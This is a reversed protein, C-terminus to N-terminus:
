APSGKELPKSRATEELRDIYDRLRRVSADFPEPDRQTRAQMVAGEMVSLTFTALEYRDVEAPLREGAHEFCSGVAKKWADFNAVLKQRVIPDPEHLELALSGIPCGYLCETEILYGRYASLLAFVREIPDAVDRWATELLMPGIGAQYRELVAVLLDQKTPFAYYLSGSNAEAERLIDAISTSGYGKEAFLRMAADVLRDRTSLIQNIM